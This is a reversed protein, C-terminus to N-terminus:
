KAHATTEEAQLRAFEEQFRAKLDTAIARQAITGLVYGLGAFVFLAAAAAPFIAAAGSQHAVGRAVITAFALLGLVGAYSRGM